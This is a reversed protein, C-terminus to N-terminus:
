ANTRRVERHHLRRHASSAPSLRRALLRSRVPASIIAATVAGNVPPFAVDNASFSTGPLPAPFAGQAKVAAVQISLSAVTLPVILCRTMLLAEGIRIHVFYEM